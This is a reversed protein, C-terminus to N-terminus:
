RRDGKSAAGDAPEAADWMLRPDFTEVALMTLVVVGAFCAAGIEASTSAPLGFRVLGVLVTVAFVDIMSWRGLVALLRYLRTQPLLATVTAVRTHLLMISLAVLKLMPVVISAAFVILALPWYGVAVLEIVGGLITHPGGRGFSVVTMVPCLNAPLYLLAAAALLAWSRQASAPKRRHLPTGCRPCPTGPRSPTVRGCCPCDLMPSEGDPVTAAPHAAIGRAEIADWVASPEFAAEAAVMALVAVGLCYFAPGVEVEVLDILRSYSVLAGFLFVEPMCWLGLRQHWRLPLFLWAPPRKMALGGLVVLRLSLRLMPLLGVTAWVLLALLWAGDGISDGAGSLVTSARSQGLLHVSLFPMLLAVSGLILGGAALATSISWAGQSHRCLVAGCRPCCLETGPPLGPLRLLLGCDDCIRLREATMVGRRHM